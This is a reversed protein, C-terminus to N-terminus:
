HWFALDIVIWQNRRWSLPNFVTVQAFGEGKMHAAFYELSADQVKRSLDLSAPLFKRAEPLLGVIEVDHHQGVLLNQWSRQLEKERNAGGAVLELAALREAVLVQVAARCGLRDM